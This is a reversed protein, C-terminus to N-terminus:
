RMASTQARRRKGSVLARVGGVVKPRKVQASTAQRVPPSVIPREGANIRRLANIWGENSLKQEHAARNENNKYSSRRHARVYAAQLNTAFSRITPTMPVSRKSKKMKSFLSVARLKPMQSSWRLKARTGSPLMKMLTARTQPSVRKLKAGLSRLSEEKAMENFIKVRMGVPLMNILKKRADPSQVKGIAQVLNSVTPSKVYIVNKRTAM